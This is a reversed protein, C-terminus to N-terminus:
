NGIFFNFFFHTNEGATEKSCFLSPAGLIKERRKKRVFFSPASLIKERRKKRVFFYFWSTISCIRSRNGATETAVLPSKSIVVFDAKVKLQEHYIFFFLTLFCTKVVGSVFFVGEKVIEVLVM